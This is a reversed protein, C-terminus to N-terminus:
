QSLWQAVVDWMM